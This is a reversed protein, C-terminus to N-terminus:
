AAHVPAGSSAACHMGSKLLLACSCCQQSVIHQRLNCAQQDRVPRQADHGCHLLLSAMCPWTVNFAHLAYPMFFWDDFVHLCTVQLFKDADHEGPSLSRGLHQAQLRPVDQDPRTVLALLLAAALGICICILVCERARGASSTPGRFAASRM